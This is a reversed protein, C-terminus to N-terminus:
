GLDEDMGYRFEMEVDSLYQIVLLLPFVRFNGFRLYFRYQFKGIGECAFVVINDTLYYGYFVARDVVKKGKVFRVESVPVEFVSNTMRVSLGRLLCIASVGVWIVM